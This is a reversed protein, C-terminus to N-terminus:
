SGGRKKKPWWRRRPPDILELAAAAAAPGHGAAIAQTAAELTGPWPPREMAVQKRNDPDTPSPRWAFAVRRGPDWRMRKTDVPMSARLAALIATARAVPDMAQWDVVGVGDIDNTLTSWPGLVVPRNPDDTM